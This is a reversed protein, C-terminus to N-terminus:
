GLNKKRLCRDIDQQLENMSESSFTYLQAKSYYSLADDWKEQRENLLGFLRDVKDKEVGPIETAKNLIAVTESFRGLDLLLAAYWLYTKDITPELRVAQKFLEEAKTYDRLYRHYILAQIGKAKGNEPQRALMLDVERICEEVQKERLYVLAKIYHLELAEM